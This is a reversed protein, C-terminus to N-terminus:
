GSNKVSGRRQSSRQGRQQKSREQKKARRAARYEATAQSRAVRCPDLYDLIRGVRAHVNGNLRKIAKDDATFETLHPFSQDESDLGYLSAVVFKASEAAARNFKVYDDAAENNGRPDAFHECLARLAAVSQEAPPVNEDVTITKAARNYIANDPTTRLLGNNASSLTDQDRLRGHKVTLGEYECVGRIDDLLQRADTESGTAEFWSARPLEPAEEGDIGQTANEHYATFVGFGAPEGKIWITKPDGNEDLEALKKPFGSGKAHFPQYMLAAYRNDWDRDEGRRPALFAPNIERGLAKWGSASLLVGGPDTGKRALQARAWLTNWISYDPAHSYARLLQRWGSDSGAAERSLALLDGLAARVFATTEASRQDWDKSTRTHEAGIQQGLEGNVLALIADHSPSAYDAAVPPAPDSASVVESSAIIGAEVLWPAGTLERTPVATQAQARNRAGRGM